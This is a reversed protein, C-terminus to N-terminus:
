GKGMLQRFDRKRFRYFLLVFGSIAALLGIASAIKVLLNNFDTRNEYDMIHLMWFFDYIRWTTNRRAVVRGDDLSVYIITNEADGMVVQWVPVPGRYEGNNSELLSVEVQVAIGAFDAMAVTVADKPLLGLHDGSIADYMKRSGDVLEAIYVPMDLWTSLRLEKVPAGAKMLIAAPSLVGDASVAVPEHKQINHEGRVTTIHFWSMVVGGTIWLVIQVGIFLSVWKHTLATFKSVKM